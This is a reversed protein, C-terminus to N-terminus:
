PVKAPNDPTNLFEEGRPRPKSVMLTKGEPTKELPRQAGPLTKFPIQAKLSGSKLGLVRAASYDQVSLTISYRGQEGPALDHRDLPIIKTETFGDKRKTLNIEVSLDSLQDGSINQVTGGIITQSGKIMADDVYIQARPPLVPKIQNAEALERAANERAHRNRLYLYGGFVGATLLVACLIGVAVRRGYSAQEEEPIDLSDDLLKTTLMFLGPAAQKSETGAAKKL